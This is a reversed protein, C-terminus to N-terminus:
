QQATQKTENTKGAIVNYMKCRAYMISVDIVSMVTM